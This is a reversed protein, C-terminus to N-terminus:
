YCAGQGTGANLVVGLNIDMNEATRQSKLRALALYLGQPLQYSEGINVGLLPTPIIPNDPRIRNIVM